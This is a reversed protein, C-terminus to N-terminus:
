KKIVILLNETRQKVIKKDIIKFEKLIKLWTKEKWLNRYIKDKYYKQSYKSKLPVSFIIKPVIKLQEKLIKKIEKKTFHELVGQHTACDFQNKNFKKSMEFFDILRFKIRGKAIKSNNQGMKLMKKDKDIATIKFGKKTMSIATKSPGCGCELIKSKPKLHKKLLNLYPEDTKLYRKVSDKNYELKKTQTYHKYWNIYKMKYGWSKLLSKKTM